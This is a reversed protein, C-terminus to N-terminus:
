RGELSHSHPLPTASAWTLRQSYCPLQLWPPAAWAPIHLPILQQHLIPSKELPSKSFPPRAFPYIVQKHKKWICLFLTKEQVEEPPLIMSLKILLLGWFLLQSKKKKGRLIILQWKWNKTQVKDRMEWRLQISSFTQCWADQYYSFILSVSATFPFIGEFTGGERKGRGGRQGWELREVEIGLSCVLSPGGHLAPLQVPFQSGTELGLCTPILHRGLLLHGSEWSHALTLSVAM